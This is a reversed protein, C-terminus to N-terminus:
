RLEPLLKFECGYEKAKAKISKLHRAEQLTGPCSTSHYHNHYSVTQIRPYKKQLQCSLKAYTEILNQSPQKAPSFGNLNPSPNKRLRRTRPHRVYEGSFEAYNGVVVVGITTVNAKIKGNRVVSPDFKPTENEKGCLIKKEEWLKSQVSDMSVFVDSGAHAGVIHLPRGYSVKALPFTQGIYPANIVYSYAIMYWPDATSGRNLHYENIDEPTESNRTESHHIVVTDIMDTPRTCFSAKKNRVYSVNNVEILEDITPILQNEYFTENVLGYNADETFALAHNMILLFFLGKLTPDKTVM